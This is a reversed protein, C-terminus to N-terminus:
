LFQYRHGEFAAVLLPTMGDKDEHDVFAGFELLLTVVKAYGGNTPACLAAVSLATRGDSDQHNINAGHELLRGVIHAHGM